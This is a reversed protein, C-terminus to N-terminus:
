NKFLKKSYKIKVGPRITKDTMLNQVLVVVGMFIVLDGITLVAPYIFLKEFAIFAGRYFVDQPIITYFYVAGAEILQFLEPGFAKLAAEETVGIRVGNLIILVYNILIGIFVLYWYKIHRNIILSILIISMSGLLLGDLIRAAIQTGSINLFFMSFQLVLAAMMLLPLKIQVHNLKNWKGKRVKGVILGMVIAYLYM